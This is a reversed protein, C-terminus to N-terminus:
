TRTAHKKRLFLMFSLKMDHSAVERALALGMKRQLSPWFVLDSAFCFISKFLEYFWAAVIQVGCFVYWGNVIKKM